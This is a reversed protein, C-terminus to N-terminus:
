RSLAKLMEMEQKLSSIVKSNLERSSINSLLNDLQFGIVKLLTLLYTRIDVDRKPSYPILEAIPTLSFFLTPDSSWRKIKKAGYKADYIDPDETADFYVVSALKMLTVPEFIYEAREKLTQAYQIASPINLQFNSGNKSSPTLAKLIADATAVQFDRSTRSEMESYLPLCAIARHTSLNM